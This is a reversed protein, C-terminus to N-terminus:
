RKSKRGRRWILPLLAAFAFGAFGANCGGGSIASGTDPNVATTNNEDKAALIAIPDIVVGETNDLDCDGNDTIFAVVRYKKSNDIESVANNNEDMIMFTRDGANVPSSIYSFLRGTGDPLVKLLLAKDATKAAGFDKGNVEFAVAILDGAKMTADRVKFVPLAVANNYKAGSNRAAKEVADDTLYLSGNQSVLIDTDPFAKKISADKITLATNAKKPDANTGAPLIPKVPTSASTDGTTTQVTVDKTATLGSGDDAAATIVTVGAKLGTVIGAGSVAAIDPSSSKWTVSKAPIDGPITVASLTLTEGELMVEDGSIVIKPDVAPKVTIEKTASKGSGDKAAATILVVGAKLGTVKGTSDVMAVDRDGSTWSLSKDAANDPTVSASLQLANGAKVVSDGTITVGAVPVPRVTVRCDASADSGDAARATITVTGAAIGTVTGNVPDVTAISKNGSSWRVGWNSANSPTISDVAITDTEGTNMTMTSTVLNILSVSTTNGTNLFNWASVNGGLATNDYKTWNNGGDESSFMSGNYDTEGEAGNTWLIETEPDYGISFAIFANSWSFHKVLKLNDISKNNLSTLDTKFILENSPNGWGGSAIYVDGDPTIAIARFDTTWSSIEPHQPNGEIAKDM